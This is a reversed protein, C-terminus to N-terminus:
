RPQPGTKCVISEPFQCTDGAATFAVYDIEATLPKGPYSFPGLWAETGAAGSWISFHLMTPREPFPKGPERKAEHVLRGDIYWKISDPLWEFAYAIANETGNVPLDAMHEHGGQGNAFYNLQVANPAKGLLEFDIEDQPNPGAYGFFASVTGSAAAGRLKIEYTGYSFLQTTKVEACSLKRKGYPKDDLSLVLKGNEPKVNGVSFTCSQFDGSAWGNSAQWRRPDFTGFDDFFSKGSDAAHGPSWTATTLLALLCLRMRMRM